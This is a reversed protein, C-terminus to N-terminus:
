SLNHHGCKSLHSRLGNASYFKKGCIDCSFKPPNPGQGDPNDIDYQTSELGLEVIKANSWMKKEM